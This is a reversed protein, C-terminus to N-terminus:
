RKIPQPGAKAAAPSEEVGLSKLLKATEDTFQQVGPKYVFQRPDIAAGVQVEFLDMALLLQSEGAPQGKKAPPQRWYEIRYPFLDDRGVLLVVRDPLQKGLKGLDPAAGAKIKDKQDPLLEPLRAPKWQGELRYVPLRDLQAMELLTFQFWGDLGDLLKPLGGLALWASTPQVATATPQGLARRMRRLDIRSLVPNGGLDQRVWSYNGDCVQEFSTIQGAVQIKLELRLLRGAGRGQQLYSGSGLLQHGFLDVRQRIKAQITSHQELGSRVKHWVEAPDLAAQPGNAKAAPPTPATPIPKPRQGPQALAFAAILYLTLAAFGPLISKM